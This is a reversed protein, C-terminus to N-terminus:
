SPEFMRIVTIIFVIATGGYYESLELWKRGWHYDTRYETVKATLVESFESGVDEMALEDIVKIHDSHREKVKADITTFLMIQAFARYIKPEQVFRDIKRLICLIQSPKHTKCALPIASTKTPTRFFKILSASVQDFKFQECIDFIRSGDKSDSHPITAFKTVFMSHIHRTGHTLGFEIEYPTYTM